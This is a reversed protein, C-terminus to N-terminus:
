ASAAQLLYCARCLRRPMFVVSLSGDIGALMGDAVGGPAPLLLEGALDVFLVKSRRSATDGTDPDRTKREVFLTLISHSRSSDLNLAHSGVTRNRHGENIVALVDDVTDCQM